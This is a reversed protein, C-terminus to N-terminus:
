KLVYFVTNSSIYILNSTLHDFDLIADELVFNSDSGLSGFSSYTNQCRKKFITTCFYCFWSIHKLYSFILFILSNFKELINGSVCFIFKIIFFAKCLRMFAWSRICTYYKRIKKVIKRFTSSLMKVFSFQLIHIIAFYSWYITCKKDVHKFFIIM